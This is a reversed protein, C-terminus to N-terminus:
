NQLIQMSEQSHNDNLQVPIAHNYGNLVSVQFLGNKCNLWLFKFINSPIKNTPSHLSCTKFVLGM